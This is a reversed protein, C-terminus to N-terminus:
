KKSKIFDCHYKSNEHRSKNNKTIIKSCICTINQYKIKKIEDINDEYHKKYKDKNEEYYKQSKIKM